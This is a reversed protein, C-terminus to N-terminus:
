ASIIWCTPPIPCCLLQEKGDANFAILYCYAPESLRADVRVIDKERAEQSEEGLTGLIRPPDGRFHKVQFSLIRLLKPPPSTRSGGDKPSNPSPENPSSSGFPRWVALLLILGVGALGAGIAVPWGLVRKRSRVVAGSVTSAEPVTEGSSGAGGTVFPELARGVEDPTAYRDAPDKALLRDLVAALAEPVEPRLQRIAPVPATAHAKM